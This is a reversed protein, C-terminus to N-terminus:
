ALAQSHKRSKLICCVVCSREWEPVNKVSFKVSAVLVTEGELPSDIVITPEGDLVNQADDGGGAARYGATAIEQSVDVLRPRSACYLVREVVDGSAGLTDRVERFTMSLLEDGLVGGGRAVSQGEVGVGLCGLWTALLEGGGGLGQGRAAGCKDCLEHGREGESRTGGRGAEGGAGAELARPGTELVGSLGPVVGGAMAGPGGMQQSLGGVGGVGGVGLAISGGPQEDGVIAAHEPCLLLAQTCTEHAEEPDQPLAALYIVRTGCHMRGHRRCLALRLPLLYADCIVASQVENWEDTCPQYRKIHDGAWHRKSKVTYHNIRLLDPPLLTPEFYGNAIDHICPIYVHGEAPRFIYKKRYEFQTIDDSHNLYNEVVLGAPPEQFGQHGYFMEQVYLVQGEADFHQLVERVDRTQGDGNGADALLFEDVDIMAMWRSEHGYKHTCHLFAEKQPHGLLDWQHLDVVGAHVFPELEATANDVSKHNYLYFHEVGAILHYEVWEAL